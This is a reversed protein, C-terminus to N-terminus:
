PHLLCAAGTGIGLLSTCPRESVQQATANFPLARTKVGAVSMTFTGGLKSGITTPVIAVIHQEQGPTPVTVTVHQNEDVAYPSHKRNVTTNHMKAALSFHDGGKQSTYVAHLFQHEGEKIFIPRSL